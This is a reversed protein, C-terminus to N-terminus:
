LPKVGYTKMADAIQTKETTEPFLYYSPAIIKDVQNVVIEIVSQIPFHSGYSDILPQSKEAFDVNNQHILKAIGKVKYGKQVFIELFSVCVNPNSKLNKITQPSAIHAILLRDNHFVFMEKPSVNPIGNADTTALWCLVSKKSYTLLEDELM